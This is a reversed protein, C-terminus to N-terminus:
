RELLVRDATAAPAFLDLLAHRRLLQDARQRTQRPYASAPLALSLYSGDERLLVGSAVLRRLSDEVRIEVGDSRRRKAAFEAIETRSRIEDCFLYLEADLGGWKHSRFSAQSDDPSRLRSDFIRISGPLREFFLFTENELTAARWGAHLKKLAAGYRAHMPEDQMDHDFYYAIRRLDVRNEPYLFRYISKPRLNSLGFDAGRSHYPTFRLTTVPCVTGPPDLHSVACAAALVEEYEEATQGPVAYLLNWNVLIGSERAHKLLSINQIARTGKQMLRLPGSSLTEIGCLVRDVGADKMLKVQAKKLSPKVDYGLRLDLRRRKLRPFCDRFHKMDLINDVATMETVGYKKSLWSVLKLLRTGSLSSYTMDYIGCFTCHRKEGWWCGRSSEFSIAPRVVPKLRYEELAKFYDSHDPFPLEDLRIPPPRPGSIIKEKGDRWHAGPIPDRWGGKEWARALAVLPIEGEGDVVADLWGFARLHELGMEGAVNGGGFVIRKEPYRQKIRKALSLAALNQNFTTSFGIIDYREWPYLRLCDELFAPVDREALRRCDFRLGSSDYFYRKLWDSGMHGLRALHEWGNDVEGTGAPGFLSYSFFWEASIETQALHDNAEIGIRRAWLLSPYVVACAIKEARLRSKLTSLALSPCRSVSWPMQVLLVRAKRGNM